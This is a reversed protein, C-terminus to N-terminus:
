SGTAYIKTLWPDDAMAARLADGVSSFEGCRFRAVARRSLEDGAEGRSTPREVSLGNIVRLSPLPACKEDYIKALRPLQTRAQSLAVSMEKVGANPPALARARDILLQGAHTWHDVETRDLPDTSDM